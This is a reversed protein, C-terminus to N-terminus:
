GVASDLVGAPLVGTLEGGEQTVEGNAVTYRYGGAPRRLVWM